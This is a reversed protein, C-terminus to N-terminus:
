IDSNMAWNRKLGYMGMDQRVQEYREGGGLKWGVIEMNKCASVWGDM